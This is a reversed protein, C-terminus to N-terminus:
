VTELPQKKRQELTIFNDETLDGFGIGRKDLYGYFDEWNLQYSDTQKEEKDLMFLTLRSGGISSLNIGHINEWLDHGDDEKTKIKWVKDDVYFFTDLLEKSWSYVLEVTLKEEGFDAGEFRKLFALKRPTLYENVDFDGQISVNNAAVLTPATENRIVPVEVAPTEITKINNLEPTTAKQEQQSTTKVGAKKMRKAVVAPWGSEAVKEKKVIQMPKFGIDSLYKDSYIYRDMDVVEVERLYQDHSGDNYPQTNIYGDSELEQFADQITKPKCEYDKALAKSSKYYHQGQIKFSIVDCLLHVKLFSIGKIALVKPFIRLYTDFNKEEYKKNSFM